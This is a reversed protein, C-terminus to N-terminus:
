LDQPKAQRLPGRMNEVLQLYQPIEIGHYTLLYDGIRRIARMAPGAGRPATKVLAQEYFILSRLVEGLVKLDPLPEGGAPPEGEQAESEPPSGRESGWPEHESM